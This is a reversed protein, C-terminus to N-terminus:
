QVYEKGFDHLDQVWVFYKYEEFHVKCCDVFDFPHESAFHLRHIAENECRSGAANVFTCQWRM